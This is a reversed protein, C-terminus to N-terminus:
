DGNGDDGSAPLYGPAIKIAGIVGATASEYAFGVYREGPQAAVARGDSDSTVPDGWEVTDGYEVQPMGDFHVELLEGGKAGLAHSIGMVKDAASSAQVMEGDKSGPKVFRYPAVDAAARVTIPKNPFNYSM